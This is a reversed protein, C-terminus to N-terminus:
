KFLDAYGYTNVDNFSDIIVSHILNGKGTEFYGHSDFTSSYRWDHSNYRTWKKMVILVQM